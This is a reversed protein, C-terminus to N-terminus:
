FLYQINEVDTFLRHVVLVFKTRLLMMEIFFYGVDGAQSM